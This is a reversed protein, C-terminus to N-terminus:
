ENQACRKSAFDAPPISSSRPQTAWSTALTLLRAMSDAILVVFHLLAFEYSFIPLLRFLAPYLLCTVPVSM